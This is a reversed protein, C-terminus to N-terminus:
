QVALFARAAALDGIEVYVRRETRGTLLIVATERPDLAGMAALADRTPDGKAETLALLLHETSIFDDKFSDAEKAARDLSKQLSAAMAPQANAGSVKPM